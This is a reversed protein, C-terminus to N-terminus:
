EYEGNLKKLFKIVKDDNYFPDFETNTIDNYIKPNVKFLANMYAQGSRQGENIYMILLKNLVEWDKDSLM